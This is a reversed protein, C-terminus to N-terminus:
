LNQLEEYDPKRGTGTEEERILGFIRRLVDNKFITHRQNGKIYFVLNRM